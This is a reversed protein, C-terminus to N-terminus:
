IRILTEFFFSLFVFSVSRAFCVVETKLFDPEKNWNSFLSIFLSRVIAKRKCNMTNSSTRSRTLSTMMKM